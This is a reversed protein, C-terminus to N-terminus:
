RSKVKENAERMTIRGRAKKRKRSEHSERFICLGIVCLGVDRKRLRQRLAPHSMLSEEAEHFKLNQFAKIFFVRVERRRGGWDQGLGATGPGSSSPPRPGAPPALRRRRRWHRRGPPSDTSQKPRGPGVGPRPRSGRGPSKHDHNGRAVLM